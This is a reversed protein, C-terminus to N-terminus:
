RRIIKDRTSTNEIGKTKNAIKQILAAPIDASYGFHEKTILFMNLAEKSDKLTYKIYNLSEQLTLDNFSIKSRSKGKARYIDLNLHEQVIQM